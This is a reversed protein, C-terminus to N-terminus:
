NVKINKENLTIDKYLSYNLKWLESSNSRSYWISPHWQHMVSLEDIIIMKLGMRKIREVLENDDYGIGNAYREDFGGLKDMNNKTIASCFHYYRPRYISHNYWGIGNTPTVSQQPLSKFEKIFDDTNILSVLKSLLPKDVSYASFSIYNEDNSYTSVYSLIDNVRLCEANQLVIIDGKAEHIGINYPICTNIYWKDKPELRIIKLFSFNPLIDEIREEPLSCDDVAIVEFDKFKSKAISKLTENFLNKRNYYSTVVSIKM